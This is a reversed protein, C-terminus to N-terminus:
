LQLQHYLVVKQLSNEQSSLIAVTHLLYGFSIKIYIVKAKGAVTNDASSIHVM